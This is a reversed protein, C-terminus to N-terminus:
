VNFVPEEGNWGNPHGRAFRDFLVALRPFEGPHQELFQDRLLDDTMSRNFKATTKAAPRTGPVSTRKFSGTM